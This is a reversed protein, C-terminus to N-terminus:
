AMAKTVELGECSLEALVAVAERCRAGTDFAQAAISHTVVDQAERRRFLAGALRWQLQEQCACMVANYTILNPVESQGRLHQLMQLATRWQRGAQCAGVAVSYTIGSAVLHGRRLETLLALAEQWKEGRHCASMAVNYSMIDPLGGCASRRTEAFIQLALQWQSGKECASAAAAASSRRLTPGQCRAWLAVARQWTGRCSSIALCWSIPDPLLHQAEM